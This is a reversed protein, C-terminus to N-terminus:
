VSAEHANFDEVTSVSDYGSLERYKKRPMDINGIVKYNDKSYISKTFTDNFDLVTKVKHDKWFLYFIGNIRKVVFPIGKYKEFIEKSVYSSSYYSKYILIVGDKIREDM